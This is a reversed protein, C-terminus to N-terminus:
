GKLKPGAWAGDPPEEEIVESRRVPVISPTPGPIPREVKSPPSARREGWVTAWASIARESAPTPTSTPAPTPVRLGEPPRGMSMRSVPLSRRPLAPNSVSEETVDESRDVGDHLEFPQRSDLPSGEVIRTEYQIDKALFNYEIMVSMQTPIYTKCDSSFTQDGGTKFRKRRDVTSGTSWSAGEIEISQGPLLTPGTISTCPYLRTYIDPEWNKLVTRQINHRGEPSRMRLIKAQVYRPIPEIVLICTPTFRVSELDFGPPVRLNRLQEPKPMVTYFRWSNRRTGPGVVLCAPGHSHADLLPLTVTKNGGVTMVLRDIM